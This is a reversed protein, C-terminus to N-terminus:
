QMYASKEAPGDRGSHEKLILARDEAKADGALLAGEGYGMSMVHIHFDSM